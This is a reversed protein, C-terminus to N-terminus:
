HPLSSPSPSVTVIRHMVAPPSSDDVAQKWIDEPRLGEEPSSSEPVPTLSSSIALQEDSLFAERLNSPLAHGAAPAQPMSTHKTLAHPQLSPPPTLGFSAHDVGSPIPLSQHSHIGPEVTIAIGPDDSLAHQECQEMFLPSTSGAPADDGEESESSVTIIDLPRLAAPLVSNHERSTVVSREPLRPSTFEQSSDTVSQEPATKPREHPKVKTNSSANKNGGQDSGIHLEVEQGGHAITDSYTPEAETKNGRPAKRGTHKKPVRTPKSAQSTVLGSQASNQGFARSKQEPSAQPEKPTPQKAQRKKPKCEEEADTVDSLEFLDDDPKTAKKKLQASTKAQKPEKAPRKRATPKAAPKPNSQRQRRSKPAPSYVPM